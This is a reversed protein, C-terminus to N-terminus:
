QYDRYIVSLAMSFLRVGRKGVVGSVGVWVVSIMLKACLVGMVRCVVRSDVFTNM